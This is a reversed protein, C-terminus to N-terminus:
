PWRGRPRRGRPTLLWARGERGVECEGLRWGCAVTLTVNEARAVAMQRKQGGCRRREGVVGARTVCEAQPVM